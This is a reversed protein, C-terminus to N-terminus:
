KMGFTVLDSNYRLKQKRQHVCEEGKDARLSDRVGCVKRGKSQGCMVEPVVIDWPRCILLYQFKKRRVLSGFEFNSLNNIFSSYSFLFLFLFVGPFHWDRIIKRSHGGYYKM